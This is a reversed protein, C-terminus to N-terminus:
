YGMNLLQAQEALEDLVKVRAADVREKYAMLDRFLVRRHTGVKRYPLKGTDLLGVLYPRSVNLLDAAQQTTLEAHIPILTVANGQAMEALIDVLLRVAAPPLALAEGPRDNELIQIRLEERDSIHSALRRGCDRALLAETPTPAVAEFGSLSMATM